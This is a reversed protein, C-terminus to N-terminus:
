SQAKAAKSAIRQFGKGGAEKQLATLRARGVDARGTQMEIEGLQLRAEFEYTVFGSKTADALVAQLNKQADATKGSKAQVRAEALSVEFHKSRDQSKAVLKKAAAIENVAAQSGNGSDLLALALTAHASAEDDTIKQEQFDKVCQRALEVAENARGEEMAVQALMMRSESAYRKSGIEALSKMSDELDKRAKAMDDQALAIEGLRSQAIALLEKGGSKEMEPRAEELMKKAEWLNGQWRLVDSLGLMAPLQAATDHTRDTITLTEEYDKRAGPLDGLIAATDALNGLAFSEYDEDGVARYSALSQEFMKKATIQDGQLSAIGALSNLENAANVLDGSERDLSLAKMFATKSNAFDGESKLTSGIVHQAISDRHRDGASIFIQGAGEAMSIAERPQGLMKLAWSESLMADAAILRAGDANAKTVAREAAAQEGKFDGLWQYSAVEMNDIRPDHGAPAPLKGLREETALADQAKGDHNQARALRLGYELNDPFVQFLSQYIQVAKDWEHNSERYHGEIWLRQEQELGSSLDFALKDEQLGKADYGLDKWVRALASHALAFNPEIAIAKQLRDRAALDDFAREKALGESYFRAAEPSAPLAAKLAAAQDSSVEGAGLKGRLATGANSILDSIQTETGSETVSDVIQGTVADELNLDVRLKGDEQALYSGVVIEDVGINKRIKALTDEGYSDADPLTLNTKMQAVSEGPITLLKGGAALETTLMESLATSIWAANGNGTLNKFGVVAVARRGKAAGGSAPSASSSRSGRGRLLLYGGVALLIVVVIAAASIRDSGRDRREAAIPKAGVTLRELDRGLAVATQYRQDPNKDLAKLIVSELGPPIRPNEKSPLIPEHNLIADILMPGNTERFPLKGTAMEYLVAGVAWIDTRADAPEGRLQEPAMYPLTGTVAQSQTMTVTMGMESAHTMFQALGFDLIKLRGDPTLRLNGPKLDRHVIGQEHAAVLGQVLQKGLEIVDKTPLPRGALRADLTLGAIYETVLFDTRGETGFEHVTAINPHNLKALSLAEKRFRKRANEDVLTGPPLVKIAVDRELQEDHARYVVGMGGAGIQEEIRYHSITKGIMCDHDHYALNGPLDVCARNKLAPLLTATTIAGAGSFIENRRRVFLASTCVGTKNLQSVRGQGHPTGSAYHEQESLQM